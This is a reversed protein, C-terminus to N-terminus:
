ENNGRLRETIQEKLKELRLAEDIEKRVSRFEDNDTNERHERAMVALKEVEEQSLKDSKFNERGYDIILDVTENITLKKSDKRLFRVMDMFHLVVTLAMEKELVNIKRNLYLEIIRTELDSKNFDM